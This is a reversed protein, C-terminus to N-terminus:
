GHVFANSEIWDIYNSVRTYVGPIGIVTACGKGFSTVGMIKYMCYIDHYIQLPGGSDGECSDKEENYSGACIQQSEILGNKLKSDAEIKRTCENFQFLDLTVKLLTSSGAGSFFETDGWGTVIARRQSPDFKSNLCAPRAFQNFQM